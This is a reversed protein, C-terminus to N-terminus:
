RKKIGFIVYVNFEHQLVFIAPSPSKVPFMMIMQSLENEIHEM